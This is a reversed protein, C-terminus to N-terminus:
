GSVRLNLDHGFSPICLTICVTRLLRNLHGTALYESIKLLHEESLGTVAPYTTTQAVFARWNMVSESGSESGSNMAPAKM